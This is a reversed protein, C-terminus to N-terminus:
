NGLRGSTDVWQGCNGRHIVFGEEMLWLCVAEIEGFIELLGPWM